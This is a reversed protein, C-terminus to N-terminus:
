IKNKIDLQSFINVNSNNEISLNNIDSSNETNINTVEKDVMILNSFNTSDNYIQNQKNNEEDYNDMIIEPLILFDDIEKDYFKYTDDHKHYINIRKKNLSNNKYIKTKIEINKDLINNYFNEDKKNDFLHTSPKITLNSDNEINNDEIYSSINNENYSSNNTEIASTIGIRICTTTCLNEKTVKVRTYIDTLFISPNSCSNEYDSISDISTNINDESEIIDLTENLIYNQDDKNVSIIISNDKNSNNPHITPETNAVTDIILFNPLTDLSTDNEHYILQGKKEKNFFHRWIRELVKLFSNKDIENKYNIFNNENNMNSSWRKCCNKLKVKKVIDEDYYVNEKEKRMDKIYFKSLYEM